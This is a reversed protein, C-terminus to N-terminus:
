LATIKVVIFPDNSHVKSLILTTVQKDDNYIINSMCDLIPKAFNDLDNKRKNNFGLEITIECNGTIIEKDEMFKKLQTEITEKYVRGKNTIYKRYRNMSLYQYYSVPLIDFRIEWM